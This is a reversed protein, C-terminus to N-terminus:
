FNWYAILSEDDIRDNQYSWLERNSFLHYLNRNSGYESKIIPRESVTAELIIKSELNVRMLMNAIGNVLVENEVWTISKCPEHLQIFDESM